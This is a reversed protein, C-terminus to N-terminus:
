TRRGVFGILVLGLGVLTLGLAVPAMAAAAPPYVVFAAVTFALAPLVLALGSLIYEPVCGARGRKGGEDLRASTDAARHEASRHYGIM